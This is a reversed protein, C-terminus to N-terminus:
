GELGDIAEALSRDKDTIKNGADHTSLRLQVRNYVNQIEPHHQHKEALLAVQSIFGFAAKFDAFEYSKELGNDFEKWKM